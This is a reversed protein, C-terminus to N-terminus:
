RPIAARSSPGAPTRHEPNSTGGSPEAYITGFALSSKGSGSLGTSAVFADRPVAVGGQSPNYEGAGRVRVFGSPVHDSGLTAVDM